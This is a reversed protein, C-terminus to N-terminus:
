TLTPNVLTMRVNLVDEKTGPAVAKYMHTREGPQCKGLYDGWICEFYPKPQRFDIRRALTPSMLFFVVVPSIISDRLVGHNM